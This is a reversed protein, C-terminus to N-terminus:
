PFLILFSYCLKNINISKDDLENCTMFIDETVTTIVPSFLRLEIQAKKIKAKEEFTVM